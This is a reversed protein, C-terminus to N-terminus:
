RGTTTRTLRRAAARRRRALVTTPRRRDDLAGAALSGCTAAHRDCLEYTMPHVDVPLRDLWVTGDGYNYTLTVRRDPRLEPPRVAPEHTWGRVAAVIDARAATVLRITKANGWSGRLGGGGSGAVRPPPDLRGDSWCPRGLHDSQTKRPRRM